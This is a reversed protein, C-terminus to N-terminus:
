ESKEEVPHILKTQAPDVSADRDWRRLQKLFRQEAAPQDDSIVSGTTRRNYVQGVIRYVPM